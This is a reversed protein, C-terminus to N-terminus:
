VIRQPNGGPSPWIIGRGPRKKAWALQKQFDSRRDMVSKKRPERLGVILYRLAHILDWHHDTRKEFEYEGAKKEDFVCDEMQAVLEPCRDRDIHLHPDEPDILENLFRFGGARDQPVNRWPWKRKGWQEAISKGDGDSPGFIERDAVYECNEDPGLPFQIESAIAEIREQHKSIKTKAAAHEGFIYYHGGRAKAGLLFASPDKWGEDYSLGFTGDNISLPLQTKSAFITKEFLPFLKGYMGDDQAFVLRKVQSEDHTGKIREYYGSRVLLKNCFLPNYIAHFEGAVGQLVLKKEEFLRKIWWYHREKNVSFFGLWHHPPINDRRHRRILVKLMEYTCQELQDIFFFSFQGGAFKDIDKMPVFDIRSGNFFRIGSPTDMGGIYEFVELANPNKESRPGYKEYPYCQKWRDFTTAYLDIKELRAILGYNNPYRCSLYFAKRCCVETKGPGLEGILATYTHCDEFAERQWRFDGAESDIPLHGNWVDIEQESIVM